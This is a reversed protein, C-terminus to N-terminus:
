EEDDETNISKKVAVVAAGGQDETVAGDPTVVDRSGDTYYRLKRKDYYFVMELARLIITGIPLAIFLGVGFSFVTMIMILVLSFLRLLVLVGYIEGFHSFACKISSNFSKWTRSNDVVISPVWEFLLADKFSVLAIIMTVILIPALIGFVNFLPGVILFTFVALIIDVPLQVVLLALSFKASKGLNSILNSSFGYKTNSSMKANIVGSVPITRLNILFRLVFFAATGIVYVENLVWYSEKIIVGLADFSAYMADVKDAINVSGALIESIVANINELIQLGAVKGALISIGPALIAAATAFIVLYVILDYLLIKFILNYESAAIKISNKANM